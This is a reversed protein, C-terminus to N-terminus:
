ITLRREDLSILGSSNEALVKFHHFIEDGNANQKILTGDGLDTNLLDVSLANANSIIEDIKTWNGFSNLKYLYYKGNHTTKSWSIVVNQIEEVNNNVDLIENGTYALLPADPNVMDMVSSLAIQSPFSPVYELQNNEDVIERLAVVRYFLPEGFPPYESTNFDDVIANGANVTNVLDMSHISLAAVPNQARYIKYQFINESDVYPNIEFGVSASSGELVNPLNSVIKQIAAPKPPYSNILRIPGIIESAASLALQNSMGVACYFVISNNAGDLTFDTFQLDSGIKVVMPYPNSVSAPKPSAIPSNIKSYLIPQKTLPIFSTSVSERIADQPTQTGINDPPPLQSNAPDGNVLIDLNTAIFEATNNALIDNLTATTYLRELISKGDARYFVVAYPTDSFSVQFTYSSKGYFDPRTAFELLKTAAPQVPEDYEVAVMPIPPTMPSACGTASNVARLGLYTVRSIDGGSPYVDAYNLDSSEDLYLKTGSFYTVPLSSGLPVYSGDEAPVFDGDLVVLHLNNSADYYSDLVNYGQGDIELSGGFSNSNPPIGTLVIDYIGSNITGTGSAPPLQTVSATQSIGSQAVPDILEFYNLQTWASPVSLNETLVFLDGSQPYIYQPSVFTEDGGDPIIIGNDPIGDITLTNGSISKVVYPMENAVLVSGEFASSLAPGDSITITIECEGCSLENTTNILGHIIAASNERFYFEIKDPTEFELGDAAVTGDVPPRWKYKTRIVLNSGDPNLMAQETATTLIPPIEKFIVQASADTPPGIIGCTNPFVTKDSVVFNSLSTFYSGETRSFWNLSYMGYHHYDVDTTRHIFMPSTFEGSDLVALEEKEGSLDVYVEDKLKEALTMQTYATSSTSKNQYRLGFQIAATTYLYYNSSEFFPPVAKEYQFAERRLNIYRSKEFRSYGNEDISPNCEGQNLEIGYGLDIEPAEPYRYDSIRTPLSLCFHEEGNFDYQVLYLYLNQEVSKDIFGLGLMRAIHFDVSVTKFLDSYLFSVPDTDENGDNSVVDPPSNLNGALFDTVADKLGQNSWRDEYNAMDVIPQYTTNGNNNYQNYKRWTEAPLIRSQGTPSLFATDIIRWDYEGQLTDKYTTIFMAHINTEGVRLCRFYDIYEVRTGFFGKPFGYDPITAESATSATSAASAIQGIEGRYSLFRKDNDQDPHRSIAEAKVINRDGENFSFGFEFDMSDPTWVKFVGTYLNLLNIPIFGAGLQAAIQDYLASQLFRIVVTTTNNPDKPLPVSVEYIWLRKEGTNVISDPQDKFDLIVNYTPNYATRYVKIPQNVTAFTESLENLLDWRLHNGFISKDANTSGVAQMYIQSSQLVPNNANLVPNAM